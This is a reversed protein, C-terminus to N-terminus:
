ALHREDLRSRRGCVADAPGTAPRACADAAGRANDGGDARREAGGTRRRRAPAAPSTPAPAPAAAFAPAAPATAPVNMAMDRRTAKGPLVQLAPVEVEPYGEVQITLSWVGPPLDAFTYVGESNSITARIGGGARVATVTAGAVPLKASNRVLGVIAGTSEQAAQAVVEAARVVSISLAAAAVSTLLAAKCNHIKM